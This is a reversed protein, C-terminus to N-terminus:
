TQFALNILTDIQTKYQKYPRLMHSDIYKKRKLLEINYSWHGRDIRNNFDRKLLKLKPYSNLKDYMFHEDSNWKVTYNEKINHLFSGFTDNLNLLESITRCSGLTYCMPYYPVDGYPQGSYCLVEEDNIINASQHFYDGNLPIMDIDSTLLNLNEKKFYSYAYLRILQAQWSTPLNPEAKIKKYLGFKNEIFDSEYDTIHFMLTKIGFHNWLTSVPKYFDLYHSDDSSIITFDIKM